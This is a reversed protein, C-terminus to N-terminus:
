FVSVMSHLPALHLALRSSACRMTTRASRDERKPLSSPTSPLPIGVGQPAPKVHSDWPSTGARENQQSNGSTESGILPCKPTDWRSNSTRTGPAAALPHRPWRQRAQLRLRPAAHSSPSCVADRRGQRAKGHSSRLRAYPPSGDPLMLTRVSVSATTKIYRARIRASAAHFDTSCRTGIVQVPTGGHNRVM